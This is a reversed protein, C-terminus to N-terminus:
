SCTVFSPGSPCTGADTADMAFGRTDSSNHLRMSGSNGGSRGFGRPPRGRRDSRAHKTPMMKTSRVPMCHCISGRSIPQPEPMVHQRLSCSHCNAPTQSFSWAANSSSSPLLPCISQDRAASSPEFTWAFLPAEVLDARVRRIAAAWARFVVKEDVAAADRECDPQGCRVYGVRGHQGDHEIPDSRYPHGTTPRTTAWVLQVGVLRVVRSPRTRCASQPVDRGPDGPAADLRTLAKTTMAPDDLSGEGPQVAEAAQDDAVLTTGVDM